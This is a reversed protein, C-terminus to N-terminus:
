HRRRLRDCSRRLAFRTRHRRPSAHLTRCYRREDRAAQSLFKKALAQRDAPATKAYDDKFLTVIMMQSRDQAAEEPIPLRVPATTPSSPLTQAHAALALLLPVSLANFRM